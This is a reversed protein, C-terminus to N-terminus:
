RGSRKAATKRPLFFDLGMPLETEFGRYCKDCEVAITTDVGCDNAEVHERFITADMAELQKFFKLSKMKEGEIETTRFLMLTSQKSEDNETFLNTLKREDYGNLLRYTLRRNAGPLHVTFGDTKGPENLYKVPLSGLDETWLVYKQCHPCQVKFEYEDGHSLRKIQLLAFTRDGVLWELVNEGHSCNKLIENIGEGDRNKKRSTLIDEEEVKMGRLTYVGFGPFLFRRDGLEAERLTKPLEKLGHQELIEAVKPHLEEPQGKIQKVNAM